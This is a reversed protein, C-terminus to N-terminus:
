KIKIYNLVQPMKEYFINIQTQNFSKNAKQQKLEKTIFCNIQIAKTHFNTNNDKLM